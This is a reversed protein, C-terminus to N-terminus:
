SSQRTGADWDLLLGRGRCEVEVRGAATFPKMWPNRYRGAPHVVLGGPGEFSGSNQLVFRGSPGLDLHLADRDLTVHCSKLTQVFDGLSSAQSRDSMVVAWGTVAGRQVVEGRAVIELPAVSMVGVFTGRVRAALWTRGLRSEDCLSLPVLLKSEPRVDAHHRTDYKALLVHEHQGVVPMLGTDHMGIATEPHISTLHVGGPLVAQWPRASSFEGALYAQASSLHYHRTRFSTIRVRPVLDKDRPRLLRAIPVATRRVSRLNRNGGLGWQRLGRRSWAVTKPATYAGMEWALLCALDLDGAAERAIDEPNMGSTSWSSSTQQDYAILTVVPPITYRGPRVILSVRPDSVPPPTSSRLWAMVAEVAQAAREESRMGAADSRRAIAAGKACAPAFDGEFSHIAVDLLLLDAVMSARVVLDDDQSHDILVMLAALVELITDASLWETLGLRYKRALWARIRAAGCQSLDRGSRGSNAFVEDPFLQGAFVACVNYALSHSESWYPVNDGGPEDLWYKFGLITRRFEEARPGDRWQKDAMLSDLVSLM